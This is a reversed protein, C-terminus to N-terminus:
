RKAGQHSSTIMTGRIEMLLDKVKINQLSIDPRKQLYDKYLQANSKEVEKSGIKITIAVQKNDVSLNKLYDGKQLPIALLYQLLERSAINNTKKKELSKLISGLQAKSQPM